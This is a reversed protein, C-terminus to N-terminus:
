FGPTYGVFFAILGLLMLFKMINSCIKYKTPNSSSFLYIVMILLPLDVLFVVIYGFVPRYWRYIVPGITLIILTILVISIIALMSRESIISPLTKYDARSDGEYDAADKILERGFHFLFAFVAPVLPGPIEGLTNLNIVMAGTIFTAAGLLSVSLNGWVPQKKLNFNYVILLVVAGLVIILVPINIILALIIAIINFVLMVLVALFLPLEGRPLPREPHNLRDAEVDLFDNLANGAGCVLAAALSALYIDIGIVLRNSLFWGMWVGVGAM